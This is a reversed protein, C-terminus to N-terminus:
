RSGPSPASSRRGRRRPGLPIRGYKSAALWLVYVVFASALTVFLWGLNQEIWTLASGSASGLGGPSVFGWAVFTLALVASVTFVARDLMGKEDAVPAPPDAIAPHQDTDPEAASGSPDSTTTAPLADTRGPPATPTTTVPPNRRGRRPARREPEPLVLDEISSVTAHAARM